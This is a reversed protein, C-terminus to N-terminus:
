QGFSNGHQALWSKEGPSSSRGLVANRHPFRGFRAVIAHHDRAFQLANAFLARQDDPADHTLREFSSRVDSRPLMM